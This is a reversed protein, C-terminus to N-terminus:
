GGAAPSPSSSVPVNHNLSIQRSTIVNYDDSVGMM